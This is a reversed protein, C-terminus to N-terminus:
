NSGIPPPGDSDVLPPPGDDVPEPLVSVFDAVEIVPKWTPGFDKCWVKCGRPDGSALVAQRAAELGLGKGLAMAGLAVAWLKVPKLRDWVEPVSKIPMWDSLLGKKWVLWEGADVTTRLEQLLGDLHWKGKLERRPSALHWDPPTPPPMLDPPVDDIDPTLTPARPEPPNAVRVHPRPSPAQLSQASTRAAHLGSGAQPPGFPRFWEIRREGLTMDLGLVGRRMEGGAGAAGAKQKLVQVAVVAKRHKVLKLKMLSPCEIVLNLQTLDVEGDTIRRAVTEEQKLLGRLRSRVRAAFFTEVDQNSGEPVAIEVTNWGNGLLFLTFKVQRRNEIKNGLQWRKGNLYFLRNRTLNLRREGEPSGESGKQYGHELCMGALTRAVYDAVAEGFIQARLRATPIRQPGFIATADIFETGSGYRRVRSALQSYDLGPAVCGQDKAGVLARLYVGGGFYLSKSTVVKELGQHGDTGSEVFEDRVVVEMSGGGIDVFVAFERGPDHSFVAANAEDPGQIFTPRTGLGLLAHLRPTLSHPRPTDGGGGAAKLQEKDKDQFAPPYSYWVDVKNPYAGLARIQSAIAMLLGVELFKAQVRWIEQALGDLRQARLARQWKFDSLLSLPRVSSRAVDRNRQAMMLPVGVDIGLKLASVKEPHGNFQPWSGERLLLESPLLDPHQESGTWPAGPWLEDPDERPDIRGFLWRTTEPNSPVTEPDQGQGQSQTAIVTNSTGFDLGFEMAVVPLERGPKLAFLGGATGLAVSVWAPRGQHQGEKGEIAVSYVRQAPDKPSPVPLKHSYLTVEDEELAQSSTKRVGSVLAQVDWGRVMETKGKSEDFGLSVLHYRWRIDDINPWHRLFVGEVDPGLPLTVKEWDKEPKGRLPLVCEYVRKGGKDSLRARLADDGDRLRRLAEPDLCDLYEPKVPLTPLTARVESGDQHLFRPVQQFLIDSPRIPEAEEGFQINLAGMPVPRPGQAGVRAQQAAESWYRWRTSLLKGDEDRRERLFFGRDKMLNTHSKGCVPCFVEVDRSGSAKLPHSQPLTMPLKGLDFGCDNCPIRTEM